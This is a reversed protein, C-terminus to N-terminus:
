VSVCVMVNVPVAVSSLETEETAQVQGVQVTVLPAHLPVAVHVQGSAPEIVRPEVSLTIVTVAVSSVDFVLGSTRM